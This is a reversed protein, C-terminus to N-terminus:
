EEIYENNIVHMPNNKLLRETYEVGYRKVLYESCEKLRPSRLKDRHADTAVFDVNGRKLLGKVFKKEQRSVEGIVASANVQIFAGIDKMEDIYEPKKFICEYREVHAIIPWYGNQQIDMIAQKLDKYLVATSFEALVYKSDAMTLAKKGNLESITEKGYYLESGLYLKLGPYKESAYEKLEDYKNRLEEIGIDWRYPNHHPTFIIGRIGEDYAKALMNKSQEVNKSGDDVGYLTHNHIDIMGDM